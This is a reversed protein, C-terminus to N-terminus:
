IIELSKGYWRREKKGNDFIVDYLVEDNCRFIFYVKGIKNYYKNTKVIIRVNDGIEFDTEYIIEFKLWTKMNNRGLFGEIM